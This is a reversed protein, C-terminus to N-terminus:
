LCKRIANLAPIAPDGDNKGGGMTPPVFCELNDLLICISGIRDNAMGKIAASVVLSHLLSELAADAGSAGYKSFLFPAHIIHVADCKLTQTAISAVLTTKGFAKIPNHVTLAGESIFEQSKGLSMNEMDFHLGGQKENCDRDMNLKELVSKIRLIRLKEEEWLSLSGSTTGVMIQQDLLMQMRITLENVTEKEYYLLINPDLYKKRVDYEGSLEHKILSPPFYTCDKVVTAIGLTSTISDIRSATIPASIQVLTADSIYLSDQHFHVEDKIVIPVTYARLICPVGEANLPNSSPLYLVPFSGETSEESQSYINAQNIREIFEAHNPYMFGSQITQILNKGIHRKSKANSTNWLIQLREQCVKKLYLKVVPASLEENITNNCSSTSSGELIIPSVQILSIPIQSSNGDSIIPIRHQPPQM